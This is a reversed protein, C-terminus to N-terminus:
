VLSNNNSSHLNLCSKLKVVVLSIHLSVSEVEDHQGFSLFCVCYVTHKTSLIYKVDELKGMECVSSIIMSSGTNAGHSKCVSMLMGQHCNDNSFKRLRREGSCRIVTKMSKKPSPFPSSLISCVAEVAVDINYLSSM